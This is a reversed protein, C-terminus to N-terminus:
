LSEVYAAANKAANRGSYINNGNFSGPINITYTGGYLACGDSGAAYLGPVPDGTPTLAESKRSTRIGGISAMYVYDFRGAYFPGELKVLFEPEKAFDEDVGKECFGNYREVTAALADSDLGFAEALEQITKGYRFDENSADVMEQLQVRVKEDASDLISAPFLCFSQKQNNCANSMCGSTRALCNETVFREADQNVWVLSPTSWLFMGIYDGPGICTGITTERLFSATSSVDMAGAAVAMALGEGNHGPLGIYHVKSADIGLSALKELNGAFGGTAIVVALANVHLTTGDASSACVGCVAGDDNQELAYARTAFRITVGLEEAKAAMPAVYAESCPGDFWHFSPVEGNPNYSNVAGSFRVGNGQLWAIDDGSADVMDKWKLADVRYNFFEVESAVVEALTIQIGQDQQLPSNVAFVGETGIGNGGLSDMCELLVVKKGLQAAQVTASLGSMGGGIVCIDADLTESPECVPATQTPSASTNALAQKATGSALLGLAGMSCGAIFHRRDVHAERNMGRTM